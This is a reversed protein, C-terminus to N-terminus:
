FPAEEEAREEATPFGHAFSGASKPAQVDLVGGAILKLNAQYKTEWDSAAGSTAEASGFAVRLISAAAGQKNVLALYALADADTIPLVSGRSALVADIEAAVDDVIQEGADYTPESTESLVLRPLLVNVADVTTYSM